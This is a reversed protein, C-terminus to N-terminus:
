AVRRAPGSDARPVAILSAPDIRVFVRSNRAFDQRCRAKVSMGVIDVVYETHEGLFTDGLVVGEVVNPGEPRETSLEVNEPRLCLTVSGSRADAVTPVASLTMEDTVEVRVGDPGDTAVVEGEM